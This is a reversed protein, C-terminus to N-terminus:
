ISHVTINVFLHIPLKCIVHIWEMPLLLLVLIGVLAKALEFRVKDRGWLFAVM